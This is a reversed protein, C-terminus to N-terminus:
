QMNPWLRYAILVFICVVLWLVLNLANHALKCPLSINYILDSKRCTPSSLYTTAVVWCSLSPTLSYNAPPLLAVVKYAATATTYFFSGM